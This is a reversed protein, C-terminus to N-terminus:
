ALQSVLVLLQLYLFSVANIYIVVSFRLDHLTLYSILTQQLTQKYRVVVHLSMLLLGSNAVATTDFHALCQVLLSLPVIMSWYQVPM